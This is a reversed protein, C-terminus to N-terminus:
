GHLQATAPRKRAFCYHSGPLMSLSIMTHPLKNIALKPGTTQEMYRNM